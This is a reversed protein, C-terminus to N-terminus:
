GTAQRESNQEALWVQCSQVPDSAREAERTAASFSQGLRTAAEIIHRRITRRNHIARLRRCMASRLLRMVRRTARLHTAKPRTVRLRIAQRRRLGPRRLLITSRHRRTFFQRLRFTSPLMTLGAGLRGVSVLRLARVLAVLAASGVTSATSASAEVVSGVEAAMSAVVEAAVATALWQRLLRLLRL